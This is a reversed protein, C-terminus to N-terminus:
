EDGVVLEALSVAIWCMAASILLAIFTNRWARPYRAEDPLSPEAVHEVYLQQRDASRRAAILGVSAAFLRKEAIDREAGIQELGQM